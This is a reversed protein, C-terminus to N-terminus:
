ELAVYVVYDFHVARFTEAYVNVRSGMMVLLNIFVNMVGLLVKGSRSLGERGMGQGLAFASQSETMISNTQM